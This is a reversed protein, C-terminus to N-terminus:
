ANARRMHNVVIEEGKSSTLYREWDDDYHVNIVKISPKVIVPQNSAQATQQQRSQILPADKLFSKLDTNQEPAVVREGKKIFITHDSSAETLGAHAQPMATAMVSAIQVAGMAYALYPAASALAPGIVPTDASAKAMKIALSATNMTIEAVAAAKSLAFAVRAATSQAGYAKTAADAITGFSTSAMGAIGAYLSLNNAQSMSAYMQEIDYKDKQFKSWVDLKDAYPDKLATDREKEALGIEADKGRALEAEKQKYDTYFSPLASNAMAQAAGAGEYKISNIQQQLQLKRAIDRPNNSGLSEELLLQKELIAVLRKREAILEMM